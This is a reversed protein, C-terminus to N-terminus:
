TAGKVRLSVHSTEETNEKVRIAKEICLKTKHGKSLLFLLHAHEVLPHLFFLRVTM